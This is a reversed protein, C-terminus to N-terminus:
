SSGHIDLLFPLSWLETLFNCLHKSLNLFNTSLGIPISLHGNTHSSIQLFKALWLYLIIYLNTAPVSLIPNPLALKLLTTRICLAVKGLNM